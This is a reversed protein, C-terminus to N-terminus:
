KKVYTLTRVLYDGLQNDMKSYLKYDGFDNEIKPLIIKDNSNKLIETKKKQVIGSSEIGAKRLAATFTEPDKFWLRWVPIPFLINLATIRRSCTQCPKDYGTIIKTLWGVLKSHLICAIIDGLGEAYRIKLKPHKM